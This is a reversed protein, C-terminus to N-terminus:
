LIEEKWVLMAQDCQWQKFAAGGWGIISGSSLSCRDLGRLAFYVGVLALTLLALSQLRAPWRAMALMGAIFIGTPVLDGWQVLPFVWGRESYPWLLPLEWPSLEDSGSVLLDGALHSWGALLGVVVWITFSGWSHNKRLDQTQGPTGRRFWVQFRLWGRDALDFRFDLVALLIGLLGAVLLNHGWTRHGRAYFDPGLFLTLADWDPIVSVLGALAAIQWGHRRHLGAALVGTLGLMAHEFITM